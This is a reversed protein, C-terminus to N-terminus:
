QFIGKIFDWAESNLLGKYNNNVEIVFYNTHKQYFVPTDLFGWKRDKDYKIIESYIYDYVENASQFDSRILICRTRLYDTEGKRTHGGFFIYWHGDSAKKALDTVKHSDLGIPQGINSIILYSKKM